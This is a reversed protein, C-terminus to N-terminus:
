CGEESKRLNSQLCELVLRGQYLPNQPEGNHVSTKRKGEEQLDGLMERSQTERNSEFDMSYVTPKTASEKGLPCMVDRGVGVAKM